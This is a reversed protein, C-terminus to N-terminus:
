PYVLRFFVNGGPNVSVSIQNTATSNPVTAWGAGSLSNTQMELRWGLHDAPWSLQMQGGNLVFGVPLSIMSVPHANTEVSNVSEGFANTASVVYFYTVGNSLGADAYVTSPLNTDITAYGSGSTM